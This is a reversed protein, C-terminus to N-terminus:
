SSLFRALNVKEINIIMVIESFIEKANNEKLIKLCVNKIHERILDIDRQNVGREVVRQRVIASLIKKDIDQIFSEDKKAGSFLLFGVDRCVDNIIANIRRDFGKEKKPIPTYVEQKARFSIGLPPSRM